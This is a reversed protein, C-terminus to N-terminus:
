WSFTQQEAGSEGGPRDIVLTAWERRDSQVLVWLSHCQSQDSVLQRLKTLDSQRLALGRLLDELKEVGPERRLALLKRVVDNTIETGVVSRVAEDSARVLNLQGGGWCTIERTAERLRRPGDAASPSGLDFIQGWSQFPAQESRSGGHSPVQIQPFLAGPGSMEYVAKRVRSIGGRGRRYVANLNVKADEDALFVVFRLRGLVFEGSITGPLPWGAEESRNLEAQKALLEEARGLLVRRCSLVGWRRQLNEQATAAQEALELSRRAMGAMSIGVIAILVVVMALVFGRRRARRDSRIIRDVCLSRM